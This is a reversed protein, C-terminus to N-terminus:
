EKGKSKSAQMLNALDAMNHRTKVEIKDRTTEAAISLNNKSLKAVLELEHLFLQGSCDGLQLSFEGNKTASAEDFSLKHSHKGPEFLPM